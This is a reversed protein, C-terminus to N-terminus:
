KLLAAFRRTRGCIATANDYLAHFERKQTEDWTRIHFNCTSVLGLVKDNADILQKRNSLPNSLTNECEVISAKLRNMLEEHTENM